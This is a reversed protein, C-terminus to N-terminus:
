AECISKVNDVTIVTFERLKKRTRFTHAGEGEGEAKKNTLPIAQKSHNLKQHFFTSFSFNTPLHFSM